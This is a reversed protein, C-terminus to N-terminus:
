KNKARGTSSRRIKPLKERSLIPVPLRGPGLCHNRLRRPCAATGRMGARTSVLGFLREVMEATSFSDQVRCVFVGQNMVSIVAGPTRALVGRRIRVGVIFGDRKWYKISKDGLGFHGAPDHLTMSAKTKTETTTMAM